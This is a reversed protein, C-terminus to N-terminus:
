HPCLQVAAPFAICHPKFNVGVRTRLNGPPELLSKLQLVPLYEM